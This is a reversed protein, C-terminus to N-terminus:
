HGGRSIDAKNAIMRNLNYSASYGFKPLPKTEDMDGIDDEWEDCNPDKLDYKLADVRIGPNADKYVCVGSDIIRSKIFGEKYMLNLITSKISVKM